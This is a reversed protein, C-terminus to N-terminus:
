WNNELLEHLLEPTPERPNTNVSGGKTNTIIWDFDEKKLGLKRLLTPVGIAEFLERVMEIASHSKEEQTANAKLKTQLGISDLMDAIEAYKQERVPLNFKMVAPMLSGCCKGHPLKYKYGIPHALGHVLGLGVNSFAVGAYFSGLLMQSRAAINSPEKVATQLNHSIMRIADIAFIDALPNAKISTFAEIAQVLADAGSYATVEKPCSITLEPDLIIGKAILSAGRISKKFGRATDILVANNTIESATGATTPIAIFPLGPKDFNKGDHYEQITGGNTYIGTISKAVDMPTGGGIGVVFHPSYSRTFEVGNSVMEISAEGSGCSFVQSQINKEKLINIIRQLIGSKELSNGGVVIMIKIEGLKVPQLYIHPTKLLEIIMDPLEAITGKGFRIYPQPFTFRVSDWDSSSSM